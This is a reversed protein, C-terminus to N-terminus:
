AIRAIGVVYNAGYTKACKPCTTYYFFIQKLEDGRTEVTNILDKHWKVADKFAGEYVKAFYKGSLHVVETSSLEKSVAYYHNAHWPSIEESLLIFDKAVAKHNEATKQLRTMVKSMNLPIHMFSVTQDKIFPKNKFEFVKGDWESPNFKPCCGTTSTSMDLLPLNSTISAMSGGRTKVM